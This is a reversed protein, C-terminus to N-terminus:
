QKQNRMGSYRIEQCGTRQQVLPYLKSSKRNVNVADFLDYKSTLM